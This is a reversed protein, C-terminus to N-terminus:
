RPVVALLNIQPLYTSVAIHDPSRELGVVRVGASVLAMCVAAGIGSGAGTVVATKGQWRDM